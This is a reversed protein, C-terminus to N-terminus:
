GGFLKVLGAEQKIQKRIDAATLRHAYQFQYADGTPVHILKVPSLSFVIYRARGDAVGFGIEKGACDGSGNNKAYAVIKAVYEQCEQHYKKFSFNISGGIQPEPGVEQPPSYVKGM